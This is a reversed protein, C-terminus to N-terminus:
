SHKLIRSRLSVTTVLSSAAVAIGADSQRWEAESRAAVAMGGADYVTDELERASSQAIVNGVLVEVDDGATDVIELARLLAARHWPYNAHTRVWGDGSPWLRSLPAFGSLSRGTPDRLYVESRMVAAVHGTDLTVEPRRGSRALSLDAAAILSVAVSSVAVEAVALPSSLGPPLTIGSVALEGADVIGLDAIVAEALAIGM